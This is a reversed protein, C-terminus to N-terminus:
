TGWNELRSFYVIDFGFRKGLRIFDVMERLNNEQVVMGVTVSTLSGDRRLWGIFSLNQLLRGFNGGRRNMSYQEASAADISIEASKVLQRIKGAVKVWTEPTWLQANTHLRVEKLNPIQDRKMTQLWKRFFPSGFPDGSGTVYLLHADELAEKQIKDQIEQIQHRNEHEIIV